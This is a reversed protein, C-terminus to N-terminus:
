GGAPVPSMAARENEWRKKQAASMKARSKASIVRGGATPKAEPQVAPAPELHGIAEVLLAREEGALVVYQDLEAIRTRISAAIEASPLVEPAETAM